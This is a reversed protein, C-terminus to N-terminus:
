QKKDNDNNRKHDITETKMEDICDKALGPLDESRDEIVNLPYSRRIKQYENRRNAIILISVFLTKRFYTSKLMWIDPSHAWLFNEFLKVINPKSPKTM